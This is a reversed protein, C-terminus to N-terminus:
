KRKGIMRKIKSRLRKDWRWTECVCGKYHCRFAGYLAQDGEMYVQKFHTVVYHGCYCYKGAADAEERNAEALRKQWGDSFYNIETM